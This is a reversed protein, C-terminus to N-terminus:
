QPAGGGDQGNPAADPDGVVADRSNVRGTVSDRGGGSWGSFPDVPFALDLLLLQYESRHRLPALDPDNRIFAHDRFGTTVALLLTNMARDNLAARDAAPGARVGLQALVCALDYRLVPDVTKLRGIISEATQLAREAEARRNNELSTLALHLHCTAACALSVDAAPDRTLPACRDVAARAAQDAAAHDGEDRALGVQQIRARLLELRYQNVGPYSKVLDEYLAASRDLAAHAPRQAARQRSSHNRLNAALVQTYRPIEPHARAVEEALTCARSSASLMPGYEGQAQLADALRNWFDVPWLTLSADNPRERHLEEFERRARDLAAVAEPLRDLNRLCAAIDLRSWARGARYDINGPQRRVLGERIALVRLHTRLAEDPHSAALQTAGLNGLCWSLEIQIREDEPDRRALSDLLAQAEQYSRMAPENQAFRRELYGRETLAMAEEFRRRPNDPERASLEHRIEIAKELAARAVDASGVEATLWGLRAYSAALQARAEPTPDGELSAQLTKYLEIIRLLVGQRSGHADTLRLISTEGPGEITDQVARLALGFREQARIRANRELLQAQELERHSSDLERYSRNLGAYSLQLLERTNREADLSAEARLWLSTAVATGVVLALALAAALGAQTPHRRIWLWARVTTPVPRATIPEGALWRRLDEAVAAASPYRRAPEKELCKLCILELPAPVGRNVRSPPEPPEVQLRALTEHFSRGEFPARGTLLAYLIAGLGYVDTVTTIAGPDGGAQEPAMYGPSGLVAGPQTLGTGGQARKALGFDTVHPRGAEDLLINAPKLDRHLIGRQHAHHVAGAVEILVRAVGRPDGALRPQAEALSGGTLLTMTFYHLGQAQGVELIPVVNPHDLAAIVEAENEFRLVDHPTAFQGERIMKLAVLRSPKLQRARYVIGMGGRGIEELLEYGPIVPALGGEGTVDKLPSWDAVTGGLDDASLAEHVEMQLRLRDAFEPFARAYDGPDPREGLEERILIEHYLLGFFAEPDDAVAPFDRAYSRVEIRQGALWRRRQDVRLVALLHDLALAPGGRATLFARIDPREGRDWTAELASVVTEAPASGAAPRPSQDLTTM